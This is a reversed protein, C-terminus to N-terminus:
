IDEGTDPDFRNGDSDVVMHFVTVGHETVRLTRLSGRQGTRTRM